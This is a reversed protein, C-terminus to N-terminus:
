KSPGSLFGGKFLWSCNYFSFMLVEVAYNCRGAEILTVSSSDMGFPNVATCTYTGFDTPRNLNVLITPTNSLIGGKPSRWSFEFPLEGHLATCVLTVTSGLPFVTEKGRSTAM